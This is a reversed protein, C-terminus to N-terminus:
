LGLRNKLWGGLVKTVVQIKNLRAKSKLVRLPDSKIKMLITFYVSDMVEAAVFAGRDRAKLNVRAKQYFGGAREIEFEMLRRFKGIAAEDGPSKVLSLFEDRSLGFRALDEEPLYVRGREIDSKIDRLINTLQFAIGLDVSYEKSQETQHGFIERCMLGVTSAVRYCYEQLGKFDAYSSHVLDMECGEILGMFHEEPIKYKRVIDALERLVVPMSADEQGRVAQVTQEKWLAIEKKVIAPDMGKDEASDVIDDTLRCFAYVVRMAERKERPLFWFSSIFNSGSAATVAHSNQSTMPLMAEPM